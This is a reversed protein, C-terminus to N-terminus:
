RELPQPPSHERLDGGLDRREQQVTELDVDACRGHEAEDTGAANSGVKCLRQLELVEASGAESQDDDDQAGDADVRHRTRHPAADDAALLRHEIDLVLGKSFSPRM